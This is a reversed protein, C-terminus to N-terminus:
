KKMMLANYVREAAKGDNCFNYREVANNGGQELSNLYKRNTLFELITKELEAYSNLQLAAGFEYFRVANDIDFDVIKVM